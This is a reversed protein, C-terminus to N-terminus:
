ELKSIELREKEESSRLSITFPKAVPFSNSQLLKIFEERWTEFGLLNEILKYDLYAIVIRKDEPYGSTWLMFRFIFLQGIKEERPIRTGYRSSVRSYEIGIDYCDIHLEPLLENKKIIVKPSQTRLMNVM